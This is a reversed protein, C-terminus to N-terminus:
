IVMVSTASGRRHHDRDDVTDSDPLFIDRNLEFATPIVVNDERGYESNTTFLKAAVVELALGSMTLSFYAIAETLFPTKGSDIGFAVAFGTSRVAELYGSYRSLVDPDNSFTALLWSTFVQYTAWSFGLFGFILLLSISASNTWDVTPPSQRRDLDHTTLYWLLAAWPGITSLAVILSSQFARAKRYGFRTLDCSQGIM